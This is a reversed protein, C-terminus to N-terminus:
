WKPAWACLAAEDTASREPARDLQPPNNRWNEEVTAGIPYSRSDILRQCDISQVPDDNM